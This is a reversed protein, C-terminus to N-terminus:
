KNESYDIGFKGMTISRNTTRRGNSSGNKLVYSFISHKISRSRHDVRSKKFSKELFFSEFVILFKRNLFFFNNRACNRSFLSCHHIYMSNAGQIRENSEKTRAKFFPVIPCNSKVSYSNKFPSFIRQLSLPLFTPLFFNPLRRLDVLPEARHSKEVSPEVVVRRVRALGQRTSLAQSAAVGRRETTGSGEYCANRARTGKGNRGLIKM